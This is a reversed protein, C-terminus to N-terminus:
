NIARIRLLAQKMYKEVQKVSVGMEQAIQSYSLHKFRNLVFAQRWNPKLSMIVTEVAKLRQENLAIKEPTLENSYNPQEELFQKAYNRKVLKHRELDVVLNNAISFLYSLNDSRELSLKVTLNDIKAVRIFVEQLVDELEHATGMRMRLFALLDSRYSNFLQKIIQKREKEPQRNFDVVNDSFENKLPWNM